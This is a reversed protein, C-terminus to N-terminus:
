VRRDPSIDDPEQYRWVGAYNSLEHLVSAAFPLQEGLAELQLRLDELDHTFKYREGRGGILAKFLKEIAQQAHFGFTRDNVPFGLTAEDDASAQL